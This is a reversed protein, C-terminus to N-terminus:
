GRIYNDVIEKARALTIYGESLLCSNLEAEDYAKGLAKKAREHEGNIAYVGYGYSVYTTPLEMLSGIIAIAGDKDSEDQMLDDVTYGYYNIWIDNIVAAYYGMRVNASYYYCFLQLAESDATAAIHDLLALEVYVAWGESFASARSIVTLLGAGQEKTKVHQYLHGPYGEHGLTLLLVEEPNNDYYYGNITINEASNNEDLPSLLYYASANSIKAVTDDMYKVAINPETALDPVIDKAATKLYALMKEPTDLDLIKKSGDMYANFEDYLAKDTEEASEVYELVEDVEDALSLYEATLEAAVSQINANFNGTKHEFSWQYYAQGAEGYAALYSRDFEKVYGKYRDLGGNLEAVGAMFSDTLAAKYQSKYAAKQADSLFEAKDIKNDIFEFLYYDDGLETIETLYKQMAEITKDYLPYGAEIRDSAFDLYTKFADKASETITLLNKVDNEKRFAYNEVSSTFEAVYGGFSSIYDGGILVFDLAYQSGYYNKYSTVTYQLNRYTVADAESLNKVNIKKLEDDFSKFVGYSDDMDAQTATTYSYWSYEGSKEYGYSTNPTVSFVNWSIADNGMLAVALM